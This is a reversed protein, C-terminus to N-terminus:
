NRLFRVIMDFDKRLPAYIRQYTIKVTNEVSPKDKPKAPRSALLAINNHNAWPAGGFYDLCNYLARLVQPLTANPLAEVYGYGSFPIVAM